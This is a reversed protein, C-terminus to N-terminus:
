RKLNVLVDLLESGTQFVKSNATYSRQAEIMTTLENAIDVTSAEVAGAVIAGLGAEGPLGIQLDGSDASIQYTNGSLPTLNDPSAVNGLPIVHTAIRAGNEYIAHLTGDEDIDISSVNAAGNGDVDIELVTYDAALQSTNSLDIVLPEGNPVPVSISNASAATLQGSTADFQLTTTALPGSVYPFGTAGAAARDYVALEWDETATKSAFIDLVVERGLSDYVVMSSKATPASTASNVSGLDGAAVTAADAPLNLSLVGGRSPAAQMALTGLNVPALGATGNIVALGGGGSDRYGLLKMGASNVLERSGNLTFSGARTMSIQGAADEVLFFGGGSVALDTNSTTFNLAGQQSIGYRVNPEVGGSAYQGGQNHLVLTSFEVDARKYGTTNSNAINDGVSALRSAQAALGTVSTRMMGFLSM